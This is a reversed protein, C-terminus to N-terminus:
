IKYFERVNERIIKDLELKDINKIESIKNFVYNVNKPENITGRVPEPSLYPCDTEVMIKNLPLFEIVEIAKRANKFTINGTFSFM